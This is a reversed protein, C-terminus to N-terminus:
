KPPLSSAFDVGVDVWRALDEDEATAGADVLVWGTMRKGSMDFPRVGAEALASDTGDAGVRVMVEESSVGVAMNGNLMFAIGGFMKKETLGPEESLLDRIRGALTEDYAMTVDYPGGGVPPADDDAVGRVRISGGIASPLM